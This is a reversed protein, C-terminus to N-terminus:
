GEMGGLYTFRTGAQMAPTLTPHTEVTDPPLYCQTIGYPLHRELARHHTELGYLAIRVKVKKDTATSYLSQNATYYTASNSASLDCYRLLWALLNEQLGIMSYNSCSLLSHQMLTSLLAVTPSHSWYYQQQECQTM